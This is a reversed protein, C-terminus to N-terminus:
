FSLGKGRAGDALAKVRGHYLYGKRDFVVQAIGKEKAKEATIEGVIKAVASKTKKDAPVRDRVEKTSGSVQVLTKGTSDDIIQTYINALTRHVCLRPRQSTGAVRKRVREARRKRELRREKARDIM